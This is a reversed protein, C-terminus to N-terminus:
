SQISEFELKLYSIFKSPAIGTRQVFARNFVAHSAFGCEEALYAIKYSSYEPQNKLKSTIYDIRLDNIYGNFNNNKHKKIVESLYRVNTNFDIAMTSISVNPSLFKLKREFSDFRKLINKEAEDSMASTINKIAAIPKVASNEKEEISEETEQLKKEKAEQQELRAMVAQFKKKDRKSKVVAWIIAAVALLGALIGLIAYRNATKKNHLLEESLPDIVDIKYLKAMFDAKAAYNIKQSGELYKKSYFAATKEDGLQEANQSALRYLELEYNTFSAIAVKNDLAQKCYDLSKAYDAKKNWCVALYYFAQYSDLKSDKIYKDHSAAIKAIAEDYKGRVIYYFAENYWIGYSIYVGQKELLKVKQIYYAASDLKEQYSYSTILSSYFHIENQVLNDKVDQKEDPHSNLYDEIKQLNRRFDKNANKFDGILTYISGNSYYILNGLDTAGTGKPVYKNAEEIYKLAEENKNLTACYFAMKKYSALLNDLSNSKKAYKICANLMEMTKPFDDKDYSYYIGINYYAKAMISDHPKKSLIKESYIKLLLHNKYDLGAQESKEILEDLSYKALSDQQATAGLAILLLFIFSLKKM